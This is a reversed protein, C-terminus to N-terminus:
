GTGTVKVDDIVYADNFLGGGGSFRIKFGSTMTYGSLDVVEETYEDASTSRDNNNTAAITLANYWSGNYVDIYLDEGTTECDEEHYWFTLNADTYSSLDLTVELYAMGTGGLAYTGDDMNIYAAGDSYTGSHSDTDGPIAVYGSGGDGSRINDDVGSPLNSITTWGEFENSQNNFSSEFITAEGAPGEPKYDKNTGCDIHYTKLNDDYGPNSTWDSWYNGETTTNWSNTNRNDCAQHGSVNNDIFTNCYVYSGSSNYLKVGYDTNDQITNNTVNTYNGYSYIGYETNNRITNNYVTCNFGILEIGYSNNELTNYSINVFKSDDISEPSLTEPYVDIGYATNNQVTNNTINVCTSKQIRIGKGTNDEVTSDKITGNSLNHFYVGAAGGSCDNITCNKIVFKKTTNEITIGNGACNEITFNQLYYTDGTESVNGTGLAGKESENVLDDFDSDSKVVVVYGVQYKESTANNNEDTESVDNDVDAVVNFTYCSESLNVTFNVTTSNSANLQQISRTGNDVTNVYLTVNSANAAQNGQNKITANVTYNTNPRMVDPFDIDTVILDPLDSPSRWLRLVAADLRQWDGGSVPHVMQNNPTDLYGTDINDWRWFDYYGSESYDPAGINEGNFQPNTSIGYPMGLTWYTVDTVGSSYPGNFNAVAQGDGTYWAGENIWYTMNAMTDNEYVVLLGIMYIRGDNANTSAVTVPIDGGGVVDATANYTIFHVGYGTCYSHMKTTSISDCNCDSAYQTGSANGNVTINVYGPDLMWVGTHVRATKVGAPVGTFTHSATYGGDAATGEWAAYTRYYISGNITGNDITVCTCTASAPASFAVLALVAIVSLLAITYRNATEKM